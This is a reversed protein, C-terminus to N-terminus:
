GNVNQPAEQNDGYTILDDTLGISGDAEIQFGAAVLQRYVPKVTKRLWELKKEIPTEMRPYQIANDPITCIEPTSVQRDAFWNLVKASIQESNREELMLWRMVEGSLPKKYEVEFRLANRYHDSKNQQRWKDYLRGFQASARSGVYITHGKRENRILTTRNAAAKGGAKVCADYTAPIRENADDKYWVTCALDVRTCNKAYAAFALWYKHAVESSLCVMWAAKSRGYQIGSCCALSFGHRSQHSLKGGREMQEELLLSAMAQVKEWKVVSDGTFTM